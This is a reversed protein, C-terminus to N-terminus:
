VERVASHSWRRHTRSADVFLMITTGAHGGSVVRFTGGIRHMRERIGRLGWHGPKGGQALVTPDIGRGNDSIEIRIGLRDHQVVVSISTAGSHHLANVIAERGSAYLEDIILPDTCKQIGVARVHVAPYQDSDYEGAVKEFSEALDLEVTSSARLAYVRDRGESAVDDALKAANAISDRLDGEPLKISVAYLKLVLGHATQLLTDHLERAIREREAHKAELRAHVDHEVYIFRVRYVIWLFAMMAVVCLSRFWWTQYFAPLATVGISVGENNWVGDNNAARVVFRYRGPTLRGYYATRRGGVEQWDKDWGELKYKFNVRAPVTLSLATYDIELHSAQSALMIANDVDVSHGDLRAATIRIPPPLSNHPLHQPDLSVVGDSTAFWLTGNDALIAAPIPRMLTPRGPLGDLYDYREFTDIVANPDDLVRQVTSAPVHFIGPVADIWLDGQPTEMIAAIGWIQNDKSPVVRATKGDYVGWGLATGFWIHGHQATLVTPYGVNSSPLLLTSVLKDNEYHQLTRKNGRHALAFLGGDPSSVLATTYADSLQTWQGDRWHWIGEYVLAVWVGGNYDSTIAEVQDRRGSKVAPMAAAKVLKGNQWLLLGDDSGLWVRGHEDRYAARVAATVAGTDLQLKSVANGVLRMPPLNTTGAIIGGQGDDVLAFDHGGSPFPAAILASQRFQDLGASTGVWFNGERDKILPWTYDASLGDSYKYTDVVDSSVNGRADVRIRKLGDGLTSVWLTGADDFVMSASDWDFHVPGSYPLGDPSVLPGLHNVQGAWITGDPAQVLDYTFNLAIGTDVFAKAGRPLRFLRKEGAVWLTGGRDLLLATASNSTFGMASDAKKWRQGDLYYLGQVGAAWVRGDIGIAIQLNSGTPVGSDDGYRVVHQGHLYVIGGLMLALWEGGDPADVMNYSAPIPRGDDAIFREFKQGDFRYISQAASMWLFGDRSQHLMSIQGPAGGSFTWAKHQWQALTREPPPSPLQAGVQSALFLTLLTLFALRGGRGVCRYLHVKGPWASM